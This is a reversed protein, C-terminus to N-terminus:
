TNFYYFYQFLYLSITLSELKYFFIYKDTYKNIIDITSKHNSYYYIIFLLMNNISYLPTTNIFPITYSLFESTAIAIVPHGHLLTCASIARTTRIFPIIFM